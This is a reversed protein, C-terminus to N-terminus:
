SPPLKDAVEWPTESPLYLELYDGYESRDQFCRPDSAFRRLVGEEILDGTPLQRPRLRQCFEAFPRLGSHSILNLYRLLLRQKVFRPAPMYKVFRSFFPYWALEVASLSSNVVKAPLPVDILEFLSSIHNIFRKPDDRLLEYPLVIVRGPFNSEYLRIVQAYNWKDHAPHGPSGFDPNTAPFYGMTGLKVAQSYSSVLAERYGRTVILVWADPFLDRLNDCVAGASLPTHKETSYRIADAGATTHPTALSEESTVRLRIKAPSTARGNALDFVRRVGM